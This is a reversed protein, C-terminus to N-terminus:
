TNKSGEGFTRGLKGIYEEECDAQTCKYRYIIGNKQVTSDKDKPAVLLNHITNSGKFHIQM